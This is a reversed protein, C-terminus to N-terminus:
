KSASINKDTKEKKDIFVKILCKKKPNISETQRAGM